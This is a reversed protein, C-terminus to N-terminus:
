PMGGLIEVAGVVYMFDHGSGPVIDKIWPALYTPWDVMVNLFKDVGFVIPAATFAMRM